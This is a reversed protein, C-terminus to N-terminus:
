GSPEEWEKLPRDYYAGAFVIQLKVLDLLLRCKEEFRTEAVFADYVAVFVERLSGIRIADWDITSTRSGFLIGYTHIVTLFSDVHFFARSATYQMEAQECSRASKLHDYFQVTIRILIRLNEVDKDNFGPGAAQEMLRQIAQVRHVQDRDHTM